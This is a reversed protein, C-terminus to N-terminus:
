HQAGLQESLVSNLELMDEQHFGAKSYVILGEPSVILTRPIGEKAFLAYVERDPDPAVPFSFGNTARFDRISEMSEERGIVLLKFNGNGNLESWTRQLHPLELKCPGCWTAFFNLLVVDGKADEMSFTNGDCDTLKFEPAPDGVTLLSSEALQSARVARMEERGQRGLNPLFVLFLIAYQIGALCPVAVLAGVLRIVHGRRKATKWRIFMFIFSVCAVALAILLAAALAMTVLNYTSASM